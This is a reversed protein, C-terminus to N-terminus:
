VLINQQLGGLIICYSYVKEYCFCSVLYLVGIITLAASVHLAHKSTRPINNRKAWSRTEWAVCRHLCM